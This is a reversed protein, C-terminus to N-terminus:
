VKGSDLVLTKIVVPLAGGVPRGVDLYDGPRLHVGDICLFKRGPLLLSLAQGLSKAMDTELAIGAFEAGSSAIGEAMRRLHQYGGGKLGPFALMVPESWAKLRQRIREALLDPELDQEQADFFAVPLNQVPLDTGEWYVTSGSLATTHCGAGIVTARITATGLRYDGRCLRSERIARGLLPGIDGYAQPEVDKEICDAVGGSFSILVGEEPLSILRNTILGPPITFDPRLGAAAELSRTLIGMVDELKERTAREGPRLSSLGNLVPSIYTVAGAGNIKILRGGVNLCGTSVVEGDKLLAMNATGGGIDFHLVWKGTEQSLKAAGAGKAALVSELDPGATAVVFDGALHSLERLVADANERRATEGTIIVAGTDVEGPSIQASAYEKEVIKKLAGMDIHSEDELPTFYVPSEYVIERRSIVLHPVSFASARNEVELRSVVMQTSTTGVDLGVSKLSKM